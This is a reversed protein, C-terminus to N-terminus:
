SKSTEEAEPSFTIQKLGSGNINRVFLFQGTGDLDDCYVVRRNDRSMDPERISESFLNTIEGTKINCVKGGDALISSGDLFWSPRGATKAMECYTKLGTGDPRITMLYWKGERTDINIIEGIFAILKGDPSLRPRDDSGSRARVLRRGSERTLSTQPNIIMLDHDNREFSEIACVIKNADKRHWDPAMWARDGSTLQTVSGTSAEITWLQGGSQLAIKKGDPSWSPCEDCKGFTLQRLDSGDAGVLWINKKGGRTSVFAITKGDPSFVPQSDIITVPENAQDVVGNESFAAMSALLVILCGTILVLRGSTAM